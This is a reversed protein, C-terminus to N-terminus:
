VDKETYTHIKELRCIVVLEFNVGIAAGGETVVTSRQQITEKMLPELTITLVIENIHFHFIESPM